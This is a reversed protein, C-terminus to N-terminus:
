GASDGHTVHTHAMKVGRCHISKVAKAWKRGTDKRDKSKLKSRDKQIRPVQGKSPIHYALIEEWEMTQRKM